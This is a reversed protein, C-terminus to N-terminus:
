FESADELRIIPLLMQLYRLDYTQFNRLALLRLRIM